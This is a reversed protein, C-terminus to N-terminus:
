ETENNKQIPPSIKKKIIRKKKLSSEWEKRKLTYLRMAAQADQISNHEGKQIQVDMVKETLRKLSPNRGGFLKRFGRYKSTDRIKNRPHSLFLVKFDNHLAHGVLIRNKLFAAVKHQVVTFEEGKVLDEPRVGSVETRYDTVKETPKVFTDYLVQGFHNVLSVRALISDDRSFQSGVGVMECDMAIVKTEGQYSNEKVLNDTNENNDVETMETEIFDTDNEDKSHSDVDELLIPDVDDFWIDPKQKSKEGKTSKKSKDKVVKNTKERNSKMHLKEKSSNKNSLQSKEIKKDSKAIIDKLQNWNASYEKSDKVFLIPKYSSTEVSDSKVKSKKRKKCKKSPRNHNADELKRKSDLIVQEKQYGTTQEGKLLKRNVKTVTKSHTEENGNKSNEEHQHDEVPKLKQQQIIFQRQRKKLKSKSMGKKINANSKNKREMVSSKNRDKQHKNIATWEVHSTAIYVFTIN